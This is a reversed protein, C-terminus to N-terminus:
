TVENLDALSILCLSASAANSSYVSFNVGGECATAGLPMPQGRSVQFSSPRPREVVPTEVEGSAAGGDRSKVTLSSRM